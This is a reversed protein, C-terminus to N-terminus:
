KSFTYKLMVRQSGDIIYAALNGDEVKLTVDTAAPAYSYIYKDADLGDTGLANYPISVVKEIASGTGKFLVIDSAVTWCPFYSMGIAISYTEGGWDISAFSTFASQWTYEPHFVSSWAEAGKDYYHIDYDGIGDLYGGFYFGDSSRPGAGIFFCRFSSWIDMGSVSAPVIDGTVPTYWTNDDGEVAQQWAAMGSGLNWYLCATKQGPMAKEAGANFMTIIAQDYVDGRAKINNLGYGKYTNPYLIKTAPTMNDSLDGKFSVVVLTDAAAGGMSLVFNGADDNTVGTFKAGGFNLPEGYEGTQGNFMHVDGGNCAMLIGYYIALSYNTAGTYLVEPLPVIWNLTAHGAQTVYVRFAADETEGTDKGDEDLVAVQIAPVTFKVYATREAFDPNAALTFTGINEQITFPAWEEFEEYTTVDYETNTEFTFSVTNQGVGGALKNTSVRFYPEFEGEQTITVVVDSLGEPKITLKITRNANKEDFASVAVKVFTDEASGSKPTVTAVASEVDLSATWDVTSTFEVRVEGGAAQLTATAASTLTFEGKGTPTDPGNPTDPTTPDETCAMFAFLIASLALLAKKM